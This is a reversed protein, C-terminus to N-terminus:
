ENSEKKVLSSSTFTHQESAILNHSNPHNESAHSMLEKKTKSRYVCEPCCFFQFNDFSKVNWVDPITELTKSNKSSEKGGVYKDLSMSIDMIDFNIQCSESPPPLDILNESRNKDSGTRNKVRSKRDKVKDTVFKAFDNTFIHPVYNKDWQIESHQGNSFHASCVKDGNNVNCSRPEWSNGNVQKIASIWMQRKQGLGIKYSPINFFRRKPKTLNTSM